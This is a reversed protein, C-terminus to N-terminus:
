FGSAETQDVLSREPTSQSERKTGAAVRRLWRVREALLDPNHRVQWEHRNLRRCARVLAKNKSLPLYRNPQNFAKDDPLFVWLGAIDRLLPLATGPLNHLAPTPTIDILMGEPSRWVAHAVAVIWNGGAHHFVWGGQVAGGDKAVKQECNSLCENPTADSEVERQLVVPESGPSLTEAIRYFTETKEEDTM